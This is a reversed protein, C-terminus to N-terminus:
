AREELPRVGLARLMPELKAETEALERAPKSGVVVGAGAYLSVSRERVEGCRLSVAWRGDGTHDCWGVLGTFFGRDFAELEDVMTRALATPFGCVAPTPHLKLALDLSSVRPDILEGVMLTSLHFLTPTELISPEPGSNM